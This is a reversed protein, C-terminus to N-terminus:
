GAGPTLRRTPFLHRPAHFSGVTLDSPVTLVTLSSAMPLQRATVAAAAVAYQGDDVELYEHNDLVETLTARVYDPLAAGSEKWTELWDGAGDNDFPGTGWTGMIEEPDMTM